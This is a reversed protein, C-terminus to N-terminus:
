PRRGYGTRYQSHCKTCSVYLQENLDLIAQMDKKQAAKYAAQGADVVLKADKIWDGQDRARGPMMLLNGSEALNLANTRVIGWERDDKPPNREIYFLADSAPYLIDIMLQSMTGVPQYSSPAQAIALCAIFFLVVFPGVSSGVSSIIRLM